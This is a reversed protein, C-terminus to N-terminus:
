FKAEEAQSNNSRELLVALLRDPYDTIIGSVGIDVLDRLAQAENITWPLVHMGQKAAARVMSQTILDFGYARLPLELAYARPHYFGLLGFRQNLLFGVSEGFSTATAVHPCHERFAAITAGDEAAVLSLPEAQYQRILACLQEAVNIDAPKIEFNLRWGQFEALVEEVTPPYIGEDRFPSLSDSAAVTSPRWHYAADLQKIETYNIEDVQGTGNTTRDVSEDHMLLLVGDQSSRVDMELVDVNLRAAHRLAVLTNEPRLGAGGRHAIVLPRSSEFYAIPPLAQKFQARLGLILVVVVILVLWNRTRKDM